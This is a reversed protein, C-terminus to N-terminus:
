RRLGRTADPIPFEPQPSVLGITLLWKASHGSKAANEKAATSRASRPQQPCDVLAPHVSASTGLAAPARIFVLTSETTISQRLLNSPKQLPSSRMSIDNNESSGAWGAIGEQLVERNCAWPLRQDSAIHHHAHLPENAGCVALQFRRLQEGSSVTRTDNMGNWLM